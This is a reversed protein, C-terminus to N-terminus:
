SNHIVFELTVEALNLQFEACGKMYVQLNGIQNETLKTKVKM